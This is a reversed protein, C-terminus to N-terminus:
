GGKKICYIIFVIVEVTALMTPVLWLSKMDFYMAALASLWVLSAILWILMNMYKM